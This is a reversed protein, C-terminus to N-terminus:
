YLLSVEQLTWLRTSWASAMIRQFIEAPEVQFTTRCLEADLVLVARADRFVRSMQGIARKRLEYAMPICM